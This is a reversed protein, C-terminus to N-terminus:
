LDSTRAKAATWVEPENASVPRLPREIAAFILLALFAFFVCGFGLAVSPLFGSRLIAAVIVTPLTMCFGLTGLYHFVKAATRGYVKEERLSKRSVYISFIVGVVLGVILAIELHTM